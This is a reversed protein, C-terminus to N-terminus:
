KDLVAVKALLRAVTSRIRIAQARGNVSRDCNIPLRDTQYGILVRSGIASIAASRSGIRGGLGLNTSQRADSNLLHREKQNRVDIRLITM